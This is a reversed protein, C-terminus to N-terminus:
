AGQTSDITSDEVTSQTPETQKSKAPKAGDVLVLGHLDVEHELQVVEDPNIVLRLSPYVRTEDNVSKYAPM